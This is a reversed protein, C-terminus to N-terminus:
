MRQCSSTLNWVYLTPSACRDITCLSRWRMYFIVGVFTIFISNCLYWFVNTCLWQFWCVLVLLYSKLRQLFVLLKCSICAYSDDLHWWCFIQNLWITQSRDNILTLCKRIFFAPLCKLSSGVNLPPQSLVSILGKLVGGGGWPRRTGAFVQYVELKNM